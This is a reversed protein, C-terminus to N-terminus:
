LPHPLGLNSLFRHGAQSSWSYPSCRKEDGLGSVLRVNMCYENCSTARAVNTLLSLVNAVEVFLMGSDVMV